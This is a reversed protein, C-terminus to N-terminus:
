PTPSQLPPLCRSPMGPAAPYLDNQLVSIDPSIAHLSGTVILADVDHYRAAELWTEASGVSHGVMIVHPFAHGAVAGSRLATVADHLAV